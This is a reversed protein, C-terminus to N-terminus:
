TVVTNGFGIYLYLQFIGSSGSSTPSTCVNSPFPYRSNIGNTISALPPKPRAKAPVPPMTCSMWLQILPCFPSGSVRRKGCTEWNDTVSMRPHDFVKYLSMPNTTLQYTANIKLVQLIFLCWWWGRRGCYWSADKGGIMRWLLLFRSTLLGIKWFCEVVTALSIWSEMRWGWRIWRFRAIVCLGKFFLLLTYKHKM